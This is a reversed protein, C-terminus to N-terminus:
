IPNIPWPKVGTFLVNYLITVIHGIALFSFGFFAKSLGKNKVIIALPWLLGTNGYDSTPFLQEQSMQDTFIIRRLRGEKISAHSLFRLWPTVM